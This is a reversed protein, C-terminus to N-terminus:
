SKGRDSKTNEELLHTITGKTVLVKMSILNNALEPVYLLDKILSDQSETGPLKCKINGTGIGEPMVSRGDAVSLTETRGDLVEFVDKHARM